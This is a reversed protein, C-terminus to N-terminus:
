QAMGYSIWLCGGDGGGFNLGGSDHGTRPETGEAKHNSLAFGSIQCLLGTKTSTLLTLYNGM